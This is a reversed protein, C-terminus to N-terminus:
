HTPRPDGKGMGAEVATVTGNKDFKVTVTSGDSKTM